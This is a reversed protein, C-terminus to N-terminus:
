KTKIIIAGPSPFTLLPSGIPCSIVQGIKPSVDQLVDNSYLISMYYVEDHFQNASDGQARRLTKFDLNKAESLIVFALKRPFRIIRAAM